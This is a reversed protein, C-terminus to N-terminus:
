GIIPREEPYRYARARDRLALATVFTVPGVRGALMVLILLVHGIPGMSVTAGTTLGATGFASTSEFLAPSLALGESAMLLLTAGVVVGVSILAVTVAQRIVTVPLRRRFVTVDANGRVESWLVWGLVAFTTVKIGGSTSAPGAGIFMLTSIVLLTPENMGGIDITTFGSTRPTVGQLWGNLFKGPMDFPGLTAPNSWEFLIVVLPGVVLLAATALLTIKTHLSWPRRAHQRERRRRQNCRWFEVLIPFGLGGIVFGISVTMIVVWDGSFRALNDSYLSLGANNFSSIAHFVASYAARVPRDEYGASWFRVFLIIAMVGEMGLTIRAIAAVLERVDGIEITGIEARALMRQRLGVRDSAVIAMVSGITMIGFGGVQALALLVIEGFVSFRSIDISGFGTVTAASTSMFIADDLALRRPGDISLPLWLLFTGVAILAVFAGVVLQAPNRIAALLGGRPM